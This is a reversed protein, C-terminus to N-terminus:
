RHNSDTRATMMITPKAELKAISDDSASIYVTPKGHLLRCIHKTEDLSALSGGVPYQRQRIKNQM